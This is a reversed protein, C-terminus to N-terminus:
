HLLEKILVESREQRILNLLFKTYDKSIIYKLETLHNKEIESFSSKILREIQKVGDLTLELLFAYGNLYQRLKLVKDERYRLDSKNFRTKNGEELDLIYKDRTECIKLYKSMYEALADFNAKENRDSVSNSEDTFYKKYKEFTDKSKKDQKNTKFTSQLEKIKDEINNLEKLNSSPYGIDNLFFKQEKFEQEFKELIGEKDENVEHESPTNLKELKINEISKQLDNSKTQLKFYVFILILIVIFNFISSIVIFLFKKEKSM